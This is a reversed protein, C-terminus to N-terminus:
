NLAEKGQRLDKINLCGVKNKSQKKIIELVNSQKVPARPDTAASTKHLPVSHVLMYGGCVIRGSDPFSPVVLCIYDSNLYDLMADIECGVNGRM